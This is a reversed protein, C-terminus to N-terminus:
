EISNDKKFIFLCFKDFKIWDNNYERNYKKHIINFMNYLDGWYERKWESYTIIESM